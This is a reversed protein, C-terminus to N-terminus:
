MLPLFAMADADAAHGNVFSNRPRNAECPM